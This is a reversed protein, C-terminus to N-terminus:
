TTARALNAFADATETNFSEAQTIPAAKYHGAQAMNAGHHGGAQATLSEYTDHAQTFMDQFNAWTKNMQALSTWRECAHHMIGTRFVHNFSIALVQNVM